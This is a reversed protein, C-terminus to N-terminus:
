DADYHYRQFVKRGEPGAIFDAFMLGAEKDGSTELVAIVLESFVNDEPPIEVLTGDQPYQVAVPRWTITADAHGLAVAQAVEPATIGTFVINDLRDFSVGNKEFIEPTIRGIAAARRDAVALRVRASALDSVSQIALPNGHSVLIVPVFRAVTRTAYVLGENKAEQIYFDDGPFFLDGAQTLKLQGLLLNSAGYSTEVAVEPYRSRFRALIGQEGSDDLGDIPPRLAGGCLLTLRTTERHENGRQAQECGPFCGALFMTLVAHGVTMKLAYTSRILTGNRAFTAEEMRQQHHVPSSSLRTM